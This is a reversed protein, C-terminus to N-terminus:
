GSYAGNKNTIFFSDVLKDVSQNKHIVQHTLQKKATSIEINM